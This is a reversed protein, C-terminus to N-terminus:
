AIQKILIKKFYFSISVFKDYINMYFLLLILHLVCINPYM